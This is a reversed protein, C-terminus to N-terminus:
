RTSIRYFRQQNGGINSDLWSTSPGAAIISGSLDTWQSRTLSSTAMVHYTAGPQTNWTLLMGNGSLTAAVAIPNAASLTSVSAFIGQSPNYYSGSFNNELL